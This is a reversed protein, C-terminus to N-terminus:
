QGVKNKNVPFKSLLMQLVTEMYSVEDINKDVCSGASCSWWPLNWLQPCVVTILNGAFHNFSTAVDSKVNCDCICTM